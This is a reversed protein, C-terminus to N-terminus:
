DQLKQIFIAMIQILNVMCELCQIKPDLFLLLSGSALDAAANTAASIGAHASTQTVIASYKEALQHFSIPDELADPGDIGLLHEVLGNVNVSSLCDELQELNPKYIPTVVSIKIQNM